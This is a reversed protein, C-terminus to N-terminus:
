ADPLSPLVVRMPVVGTEDYIEALTLVLNLESIVLEEEPETLVTIIWQNAENRRFYEVLLTAQSV